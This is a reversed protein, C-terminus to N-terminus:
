TTGGEMEPKGMADDLHECIAPYEDELGNDKFWQRTFALADVAKQHGNLAALVMAVDEEAYVEAIAEGESDLIDAGGQGLAETEATFPPLARNM